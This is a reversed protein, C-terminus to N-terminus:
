QSTVTYEQFFFTHYDNAAFMSATASESSTNGADIEESNNM